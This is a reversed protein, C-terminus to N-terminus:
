HYFFKSFRNFNSLTIALLVHSTKQSVTYVQLRLDARSMSLDHNTNDTDVVYRVCM